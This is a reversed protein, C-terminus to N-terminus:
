RQGGVVMLDSATEAYGGMEFIAAVRRLRVQSTREVFRCFRLRRNRIQRLEDLPGLRHVPAIDVVGGDAAKWCNPVVPEWCLWFCLEDALAHPLEM